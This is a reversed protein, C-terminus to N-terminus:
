TRLVFAMSSAHRPQSAFAAIMDITLGLVLWEPSRLQEKAPLPDTWPFLIEM